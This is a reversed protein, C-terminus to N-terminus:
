TTEGTTGGASSRDLVGETASELSQQDRLHDVIRELRRQRTEKLQNLADALTPNRSAVEGAVSESVRVVECDQAAVVQPPYEWRESRSLLGFTDGESLEAINVESGDLAPVVLRASGQWLMYLDRDVEGARFLREGRAFWVAQAGAALRDLDDEDLADFLPSARLRRRLEARDPIGALGAQVGDYMYIDYAPSPLPVDNRHSSYWVLSGFDSAVRPAIEYNDIWLDVEYGMLPDDVQVVRARPPPDDLVGETASAADLLMEKALTPPNVYAVQVPVVVRHLRTPSGYNTVTGGALEANPVVLLDGNRNVIRSSRWNMDVVRGEIDGAKIWDGPQFPSDSLLLLGSALGSLTDQLAFSVVLSTVGLATM